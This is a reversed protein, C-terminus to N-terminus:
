YLRHLTITDLHFLDCALIAQAQARLFQARTPGARRPAPDIGAANLIGWVTSAGIQYGLNALEGHIRRYGWMPERHGPARDPRTPRRPHPTSRVPRAPHDLPPRRTPPALAPHHGPHRAARPTPPGPATPHPCRTPRPGDVNNAPTAHATPARRRPTRRQLVALQHRLVLIEIDKPADARPRLVIWGLPKPSMQYILRLAM